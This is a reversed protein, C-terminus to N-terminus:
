RFFQIVCWAAYIGMAACAEFLMGFGFGKLCNGDRFSTLRNLESQESEPFVVVPGPRATSRGGFNVGSELHPLAQRSM